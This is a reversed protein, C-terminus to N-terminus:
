GRPAWWSWLYTCGTVSHSQLKDSDMLFHTERSPFLKHHPTPGRCANGANGQVATKKGMFSVQLLCNLPEENEIALKAQTRSFCLSDGAILWSVRKTQNIHANLIQSGNFILQHFYMDCPIQFSTQRLINFPIALPFILPKWIPLQSQPTPTQYPNQGKKEGGDRGTKDETSPQCSARTRLM